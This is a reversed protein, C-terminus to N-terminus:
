LCFINHCGQLPKYVPLVKKVAHIDRFLLVEYLYRKYCHEKKKWVKIITELNMKGKMQNSSYETRQNASASYEGRLYAVWTKSHFTEEKYILLSKFKSVEM